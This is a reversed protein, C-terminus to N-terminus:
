EGPRVESVIDLVRRLWASHTLGVGPPHFYCGFNTLMASLEDEGLNRGLLNRLETALRQAEDSNSDNLFRRVVALDTPDDELCDQHFYTGCLHRVTPFDDM